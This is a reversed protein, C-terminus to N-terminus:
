VKYRQLNLAANYDRDIVLGCEPCVYTRDSLKLDKKINGCNSCTKSSPYFRDAKYFPINNFKCKYEIQRIIEYFSQEQIAKALHKNKMMGAVNLDEVVIQAPLLNVLKATMQHNYNQRIGNLRHWIKRIKEEEKIINKTKIYKNGQKNMEYKRSVSRQLRKKKKILDQVKKSKNINHFIIKENGFAVIATEKVGLDIGM